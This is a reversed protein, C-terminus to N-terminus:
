QSLGSTQHPRSAKILFSGIPQPKTQVFRFSFNQSPSRLPQWAPSLTNVLTLHSFNISLFSGPVGGFDRLASLLFQVSSSWDLLYSELLVGLLSFERAGRWFWSSILSHISRILERRLPAVGLSSGFPTFERAGWWFWSSILSHLSRILELRLPAVGPSSGFSHFEPCGALAVFLWSLSNFWILQLSPPTRSWSFRLFLSSGPVGGLGQLISLTFQIPSESPVGLLTFERAGSRIWSSQSLSNFPHAETKSTRSWSFERFLSSM